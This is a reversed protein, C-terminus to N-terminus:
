IHCELERGSNIFEDVLERYFFSMEQFNSLLAEAEQNSLASLRNHVKILKRPANEQYWLYVDPYAAVFFLHFGKTFYVIKRASTTGYNDSTIGHRSHLINCNEDFKNPSILDTVFFANIFYDLTEKIDNESFGERFKLWEDMALKTEKTYHTKTPKPNQYEPKNWERIAYSVFSICCLIGIVAFFTLM